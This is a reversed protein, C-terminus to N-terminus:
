HMQKEIIKDLEPHSTPTKEEVPPAKPAEIGRTDHIAITKATPNSDKCDTNSIVTKGDIVCKKLAGGSEKGKAADVVQAAPSADFKKKAKDVGEAFYNTEHRMSMLAVMAVLGIVASVIAVGLLSLGRQRKLM